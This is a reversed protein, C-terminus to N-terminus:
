RATVFGASRASLLSHALVCTGITGVSIEDGLCTSVCVGCTRSCVPSGPFLLDCVSLSFCEQFVTEM